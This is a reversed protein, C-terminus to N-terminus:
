EAPLAAPETVPEAAPRPKLGGIVLRAAFIALTVAGAGFVVDGPVRMWVLTQVVPSHIVAPSRAYWMGHEIAANRSARRNEALNRGIWIGQLVKL